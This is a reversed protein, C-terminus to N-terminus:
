VGEEKKKKRGGGKGIQQEDVQQGAALWRASGYVWRGLGM